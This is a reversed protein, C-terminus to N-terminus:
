HAKTTYPTTVICRPEFFPSAGRVTGSETGNKGFEGKATGVLVKSGNPNVMSVKTHFKGNKIEAPKSVYKPPQGGAGCSNPFYPGLTFHNVKEGSSSVKFTVSTNTLGELSGSYKAGAVPGAGMAIAATGAGLALTVIVIKAFRTWRPGQRSSSM